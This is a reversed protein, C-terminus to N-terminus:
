RRIRSTKYKLIGIHADVICHLDITQM